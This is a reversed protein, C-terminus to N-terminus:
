RHLRRNTDQWLEIAALLFVLAGVIMHLTRTAGAYGLAFPAIVLWAGCLMELWEEWRRLSILELAGLMVIFVGVAGTSVNVAVSEPAGMIVPAALVIVGLIMSAVDEWPRHADLSYWHRTDLTAM